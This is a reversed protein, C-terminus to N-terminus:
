STPNHGLAEAVARDHLEFAACMRTTTPLNEFV